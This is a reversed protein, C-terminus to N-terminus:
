CAQDIVVVVCPYWVDRAM